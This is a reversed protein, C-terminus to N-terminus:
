ILVHVFCHIFRQLSCRFYLPVEKYLYGIRPCRDVGGAKGSVQMHNVMVPQLLGHMSVTKHSPLLVQNHLHLPTQYLHLSSPAQYVPVMAM